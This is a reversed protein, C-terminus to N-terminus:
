AVDIRNLALEDDPFRFSVMRNRIDLYVLGPRDTSGAIDQFPWHGIQRKLNTATVTAAQGVSKGSQGQVVLGGESLAQGSVDIMAYGWGTQRVYGYEGKKGGDEAQVVGRLFDRGGSSPTKFTLGPLILSYDTDTGTAVPWKGDKSIGTPTGLVRVRLTDSDIHETIYFSTGQGAGDHIYGLAGVVWEDEVTGFEGSDVLLNTGAAAGTTVTGVSSGIWNAGYADCVVEGFDVDEALQVYSWKDGLEDPVSIGLRHKQEPGFKQGDKFNITIGTSM